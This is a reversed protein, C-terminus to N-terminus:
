SAFMEILPVTLAQRNHEAFAAMRESLKEQWADQHPSTNLGEPLFWELTRYLEALTLVHLDCSLVYCNNKTEYLYGVTKLKQLVHQMAEVSCHAELKLLAQLPLAREQKQAQWLHGLVRYSLIFYPTYRVSRQAQDLRLGNVIVAGILFIVWCFYTWLLFIPITALAGYLLTYTPFHLVYFGFIKKAVEFLSTAVVAGLAAHHLKVPCHPVALYLFTFAFFECAAPLFWLIQRTGIDHFGQWWQLSGLYSSLFVAVGLLLPGLTLMAWYLLISGSLQRNYKVKWLDNLTNEVSIMMLIATVGLFTVGVYSLRSAQSTFEAVYQQIVAGRSPIFNSFVFSAVQNTLQNFIPLASLVTFVVAMLPVIALLSTYTLASARTLCGEQYFKIGVWRWFCWVRKLYAIIFHTLLM